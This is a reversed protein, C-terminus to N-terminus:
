VLINVQVAVLIIFLLTSISIFTWLPIVFVLLGTVCSSSWTIIIWILLFTAPIMLLLVIGIFEEFCDNLCRLLNTLKLYWDALEDFANENMLKPQEKLSIEKNSVLDKFKKNFGKLLRITLFCYNFYYSLSLMFSHGAFSITFGCFLTYPTSSNVWSTYQFPALAQLFISKMEGSGFMASFTLITNAISVSFCILASILVIKKIFKKEKDVDEEYQIFIEEYIQEFKNIKSKRSQIFFFISSTIACAFYWIFTIMKLVLVSGFEDANGWTFNFSFIAKISNYWLLLITLICYFKFALHDNVKHYSGFIRLFWFNLNLLEQVLYKGADKEKLVDVGKRSTSEKEELSISPDIKKNLKM